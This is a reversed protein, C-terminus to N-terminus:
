PSVEEGEKEESPLRGYLGTMARIEEALEKTFADKRM